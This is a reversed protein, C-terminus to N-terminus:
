CFISIVQIDGARSSKLDLRAHRADPSAAFRPGGSTFEWSSSSNPWPHCSHSGSLLWPRSHSRRRRGRARPCWLLKMHRTM